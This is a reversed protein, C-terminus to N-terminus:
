AKRIRLYFIIVELFIAVRRRLTTAWDVFEGVPPLAAADCM